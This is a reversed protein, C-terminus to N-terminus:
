LYKKVTKIIEEKIDEDEIEKYIPSVFGDIIIRESEQRTLGRSMLYYLEEESIAGIGAGHSALCDFEDIQLWPNASIKSGIDLLIGKSKQSVNSRKAGRKVIGNTNINLTVDGKAIGYNRMISVTDENEHSVVLDSNQTVGSANILVNFNDYTAGKGLLCVSESERVENLYLALKKNELKAGEELTTNVKILSAFDFDSHEITTIKLNSNRKCIIEKNVIIEESSNKVYFVELIDANIGENITLHINCSKDIEHIITLSINSELNLDNINVSKDEIIGNHFYIYNNRKLISLDM